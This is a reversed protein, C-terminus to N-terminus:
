MWPEIYKKTASKLETIKYFTRAKGNEIVHKTDIDLKRLFSKVTKFNQELLDATEYADIWTKDCGFNALQFMWKAPPRGIRKKKKM